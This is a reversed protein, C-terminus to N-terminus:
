TKQGTFSMSGMRTKMEGSISDGDLTATCTLQFKVGMMKMNMEWSADNGDLTGGSFETTGIEKNGSLVGSLAGNDEKLTLTAERNGWKSTVKLEYIGDAPM